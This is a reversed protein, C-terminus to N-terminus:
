QVSSNLATVRYSSDTIKGEFEHVSLSLNGDGTEIHMELTEWESKARALKADFDKRLQEFDNNLNTRETASCLVREELRVFRNSVADLEKDSKQCHSVASGSIAFSDCSASLGPVGFEKSLFYCRLEKSHDLLFTL